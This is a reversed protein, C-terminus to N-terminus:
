KTDAHSILNSMSSALGVAQGLDEELVADRLRPRKVFVQPGGSLKNSGEMAQRDRELVVEINGAVVASDSESRANALRCCIMCSQHFQQFPKTSDSVALGIDGRGHHNHTDRISTNLTARVEHLGFRHIVACSPCQVRQIPFGGRSARGTTFRGQNGEASTRQAYASVNSTAKANWGRACADERESWRKAPERGLAAKRAESAM